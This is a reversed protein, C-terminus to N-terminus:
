RLSTRRILKGELRGNYIGHEVIQRGGLYVSEIGDGRVQSDTFTACDTVTDPDFLVMDADMGVKLLGKQHLGYVTAPLSTMKRVADELTLVGLERVYRGLVRLFTGFARPHVGTCGKYYIGDSGIMTRPYRLVREVDDDQMCFYIGNTSLRDDFLVDMVLLCPDQQREKAVDLVMRGTYEPHSPSAGFMTTGFRQEPTMGALMAERLGPRESPSSLMNLLKEEGFSHMHQPIRSKLGTSSATYPYQDCFVNLGEANALEMREITEATKGWNPENIAKHHSLVLRCGSERAVQLMEDVSEVLRNGEDRLHVSITGDYEEMVTSLAILESTKAFSGAPYVLGYSLGMAGADLCSCLLSKMAELEAPTPERDEMGMVAARLTGHGVFLGMNNGAPAEAHRLYDGYVFRRDATPHFDYPTVTVAIEAASELHETSFPAASIGCMGAIQTTVGQEVEQFFTNDLDAMMDGHSHSNIFGPALVLGKADVEQTGNGLHRGIAAIKGDRVAVDGWYFPNGTGDVVKANRILLDWM